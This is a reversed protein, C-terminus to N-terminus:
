EENNINTITGIEGNFIGNGKEDKTINREWEIDYNNKIQMIRDGVRFTVGNAQKEKKQPSPPNLAQQLYTNLERTGLM